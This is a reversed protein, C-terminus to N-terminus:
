RPRGTGATRTGGVPPARFEPERRGATAPGGGRGRHLSPRGSPPDWVGEPLRFQDSPGRRTSLEATRPRRSRGADALKWVPADRHEVRRGDGSPRRERAATSGPFLRDTTASRPLTARAASDAPHAIPRHSFRSRRKTGRRLDSDDPQGCDAAHAVPRSRRGSRFLTTYPFTYIETTATDNFFFFSFDRGFQGYVKIKKVFM